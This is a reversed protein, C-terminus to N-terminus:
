GDPPGLVTNLVINYLFISAPNILIMEPLETCKSIVIKRSFNTVILAEWYSLLVLKFCNFLGNLKLTLSYMKLFYVHEKVRGISYLTYENIEKAIKMRYDHRMLIRLLNDTVPLGRVSDVIILSNFGWWDRLDM